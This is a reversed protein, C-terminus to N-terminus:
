EIEAEENLSNIIGSTLQCSRFRVAKEKVNSYELLYSILFLAFEENGGENTVTTAFSTIFQILREV